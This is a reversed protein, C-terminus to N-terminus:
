SPGLSIYIIISFTVVCKEDASSFLINDQTSMGSQPKTWFTGSKIAMLRSGTFAMLEQDTELWTGDTELCMYQPRYGLM